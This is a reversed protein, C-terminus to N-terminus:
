VCAPVKTDMERFAVGAGGDLNISGSLCDALLDFGCCLVASLDQSGTANVLINVVLLVTITQPVKWVDIKKQSEVEPNFIICM